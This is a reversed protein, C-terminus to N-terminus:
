DDVSKMMVWCEDGLVWCWNVPLLEYGVLTESLFFTVGKSVVVARFELTVAVSQNIGCRESSQLVLSLHEGKRATDEHM